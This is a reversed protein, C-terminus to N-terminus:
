TKPKEKGLFVPPVQPLALWQAFKNYTRGVKQAIEVGKKTGKLIKNFDSNEDGLKKLFRGLKNMPKKLKEKDSDASVEDLSDEIKELEKEMKPDADGLIGRLESFDSQIDPLDVKVEVSVDTEHKVVQTVKQEQKSAQLIYVDGGKREIREHEKRREEESVIGDLLLKVPYARQLEDNFYEHRNAREHGILETYKVTIENNDPLPVM